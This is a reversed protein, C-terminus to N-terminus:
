SKMRYGMFTEGTPRHVESNEAIMGQEPKTRRERAVGPFKRKIRKLQAIKTTVRNKELM